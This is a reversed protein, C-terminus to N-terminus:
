TTVKATTLSIKAEETTAAASLPSTIKSSDGKETTKSAAVKAAVMTKISAIQNPTKDKLENHILTTHTEM